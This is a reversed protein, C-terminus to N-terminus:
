ASCVSWVVLQWLFVCQRVFTFLYIKTSLSVWKLCFYVSICLSDNKLLYSVVVAARRLFLLLCFPPFICIRLFTAFGIVRIRKRLQLARFLEKEESVNFFAEVFSSLVVYCVLLNPISSLHHPLCNRLCLNPRTSLDRMWFFIRRLRIDAM